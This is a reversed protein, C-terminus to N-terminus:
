DRKKKCAKLCSFIFQFKFYGTVNNLKERNFFFQKLKHNNNLMVKEITTM